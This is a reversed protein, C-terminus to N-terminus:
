YVVNLLYVPLRGMAQAPLTFPKTWPPTNLQAISSNKEIHKKSRLRYDRGSKNKNQIKTSRSTFIADVGREWTQDVCNLLNVSKM